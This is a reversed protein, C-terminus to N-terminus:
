TRIHAEESEVLSEEGDQRVRVRQSTSTTRVGASEGVNTSIVVNSPDAVNVHGSHESAGDSAAASRTLRKATRTIRRIAGM